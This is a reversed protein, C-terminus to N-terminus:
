ANEENHSADINQVFKVAEPYAISRQNQIQNVLFKCYCSVFARPPVKEIYHMVEKQANIIQIMNEHQLNKDFEFNDSKEFLEMLNAGIKTTVDSTYLVDLNILPTIPMGISFPTSGIRDKLARYSSIVESRFDPTAAYLFMIGAFEGEATDNIMSLMNEIAQKQKVSGRRFSATRTGEDFAILFGRYAMETRLFHIVTKLRAFANEEKAPETLGLEKLGRSSIKTGRVWSILEDDLITKNAGCELDLLRKGLAQLGIFMQPDRVGIAPSIFTRKIQSIIPSPVEQNKELGVERLKQQVWRQLLVEIGKLPQNEGLKRPALFSSMIQQFIALQSSFPCENGITVVSTVIDNNQARNCLSLIFQTKGLGYDGEIYKFCSLGEALDEKFYQDELIDLVKETGANILYSSIGPAVPANLLQNKLYKADKKSIDM